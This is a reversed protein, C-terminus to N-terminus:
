KIRKQHLPLHSEKWLKEKQNKRTLTYSHLSKHTNAEYGVVKGFESILELLKRTTNEHGEIYLTMDEVFPSLKVKNEM